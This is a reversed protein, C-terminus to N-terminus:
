WTRLFHKNIEAKSFHVLIPRGHPCTYPNRTKSWNDLIQQMQELSLRDGARVASHCAISKCLQRFAEPQTQTTQHEHLEALMERFVAGAESLRLCYPLATVSISASELRWDFGAQQFLPTYAQLVSLELPTAELWVPILLPQSLLQERALLDEYLAREEAVHQDILALGNGHHAVIYTLDCVQGIARMLPLRQTPQDPVLEPLPLIHPESRPAPQLEPQQPQVTVEPAQSPPASATPPLWADPHETKVPETQRPAVEPQPVEPRAERLSASHTPVQARQYSEAHPSLTSASTEILPEAPRQWHYHGLAQQIAETLLQYIQRTYKFRVEKKTPHVNVDLESAPVTLHLIAVPYHRRPVLDQYLEDLLKILGPIKVWRRNVFVFQYTRDRRVRDPYSLLGQIKGATTQHDIGYLSDGPERGLLQYVTAQLTQTGTTELVTKGKKILKFSVQPLALAFAQMLQQIYGLETSESSLFKLRAPTNYFLDRITLTTGPAAGVSNEEVPEGAQLVLRKGVEATQTRTIIEVRSVSAISPLAEGRFGLTDLQWLEETSYLKSTAFRQFALLVSDAPIGSGNDSIRLFRGGQDAEVEIRTAGSDLANEVLEKVVSSPREVVEGAAIQNAVQIDLLRISRM